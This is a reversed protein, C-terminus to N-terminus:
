DLLIAAIEDVMKDLDGITSRDAVPNEVLYGILTLRRSTAIVRVLKEPETKQAPAEYRHPQSPEQVTFGTAGTPGNAGLLKGTEGYSNVQGNPAKISYGPKHEHKIQEYGNRCKGGLGCTPCSRPYAEGKFELEFRCTMDIGEGDKIMISSPIPPPLGGKDRENWYRQERERDEDTTVYPKSPGRYTM